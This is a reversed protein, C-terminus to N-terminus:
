LHAPQGPAPHGHRPGRGRLRRRHGQRCDPLPRTLYTTKKHYALQSPQSATAMNSVMPLPHDIPTLTTYLFGDALTELGMGWNEM